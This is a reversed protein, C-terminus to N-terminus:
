TSGHKAREETVATAFKALLTARAGWASRQANKQIHEENHKMIASWVTTEVQAALEKSWCTLVSYLGVGPDDKQAMRSAKISELDTLDELVARDLSM